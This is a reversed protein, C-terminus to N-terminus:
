RQILFDPSTFMLTMIDIMSRYRDRQNQMIHKVETRMSESMEGSTFMLDLYDVAEEVEEDTKSGIMNVVRTFSRSAEPRRIINFFIFNFGNLMMDESYIGMVPSVIKNGNATEEGNILPHQYDFQYFNFVSPAMMPASFLSDHLEYFGYEPTGGNPWVNLARYFHTLALLPERVKGFVETDNIHGNRAEDHMLIAKAVAALDGKVGEGNDNFVTAVDRIYAPTPNSTVMMKILRESVFPAINPHAFINDLAANIEAKFEEHTMGPNAPLIQGEPHEPTPLLRKETKDHHRVSRLLPVRHDGFRHDWTNHGAPHRISQFRLGTFVKAFAKIIDQDYTEIRQSNELKYSGDLNLEYLGISMLQLLERAYNEDAENSSGAAAADNPAYTLFVGMAPHMTVDYMLDRFNGLGHEILTDYYTVLAAQHKTLDTGEQSVVFIQSLAFAMRQRLQDDANFALNFWARYRGMPRRGFDQGTYVTTAPLAIQEDIWEEATMGQLRDVDTQSPGYTGQQLLRVAELPQMKNAVVDTPAEPSDDSAPPTDDISPLTDEEAPPADSIPEPTDDMAPPMDDMAPPMDDMTPPMDDMAPPMDDMAPPMDDMAPPTVDVTPPTVDPTTAPNTNSGVSDTVQPTQQTDTPSNSESGSGGCASLTTSLFLAFLLNRSTNEM